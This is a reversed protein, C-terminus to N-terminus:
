EWLVVHVMHARSKPPNFFQRAKLVANYLSDAEVEISLGNYFAKYKRM